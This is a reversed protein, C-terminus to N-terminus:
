FTYQPQLRPAPTADVKPNEGRRWELPEGVNPSAYYTRHGLDVVAGSAFAIHASELTLSSSTDNVLPVDFLYFVSGVPVGPYSIVLTGSGPYRALAHGDLVGQSTRNNSSGCAPAAALVITLLFVRAAGRM